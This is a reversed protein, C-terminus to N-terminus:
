PPLSGRGTGASLRYSSGGYVISSTVDIRASCPSLMRVTRGLLFHTVHTCAPIGWPPRWTVVVKRSYCTRPKRLSCKEQLTVDTVPGSAVEPGQTLRLLRSKSPTAMNLGSNEHHHRRRPVAYHKPHFDANRYSKLNKRSHTHFIGDESIHLRTSKNYLSTESSCTAEMKLTSSLIRTLFPTLHYV